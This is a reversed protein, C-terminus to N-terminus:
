TIAIKVRRPASVRPPGSLAPTTAPAVPARRTRDSGSFVQLSLQGGAQVRAGFLRASLHLSVLACLLVAGIAAIRERAPATSPVCSCHSRRLPPVWTLARAVWSGPDASIHTISALPCAALLMWVTTLQPVEQADRALAGTGAMLVAFLLYGALFIVASWAVLTWSISM